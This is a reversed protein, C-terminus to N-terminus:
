VFTDTNITTYSLNYFYSNYIILLTNIQYKITFYRFQYLIKHFVKFYSKFFLVKWFNSYLAQGHFNSYQLMQCWIGWVGQRILVESQSTRSERHSDLFGERFIGAQTIICKEGKFSEYAYVGTRFIWIVIQKFYM